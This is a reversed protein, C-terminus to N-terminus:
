SRRHTSRAHSFRAGRAHRSRAHDARKRAVASIHRTVPRVGGAQHLSRVAMVRRYVPRYVPRPAATLAALTLKGAEVSTVVHQARALRAGIALQTACCLLAVLVVRRVVM